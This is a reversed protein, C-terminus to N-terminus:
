VAATGFLPRTVLHQWQEAALRYEVAAGAKYDTASPYPTHMLALLFLMILVALALLGLSTKHNM